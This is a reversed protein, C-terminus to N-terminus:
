SAYRDCFCYVRYMLISSVVEGGIASYFTSVVRIGEGYITMVERSPGYIMVLQKEYDMVAGFRSLWDMHVIVCVDRMAILILDIPFKVGFIELVYYRYVETASVTHDDDISIKLPRDLAERAVSFDRCFSTSVFSQSTDSDFLVFAPVFVLFTGLLIIIYAYVIFYNLLFIFCICVLSM